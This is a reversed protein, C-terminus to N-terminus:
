WLPPLPSEILIARRSHRRRQSIWNCHYPLPRASSNLIRVRCLGARFTRPLTIICGLDNDLVVADSHIDAAVPGETRRLEIEDPYRETQGTTFELCVIRASIRM